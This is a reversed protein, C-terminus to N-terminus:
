EKKTEKKTEAKTEAKTETAATTETGAAEATEAETTEAEKVVRTVRVSVINNNAPEAIELNPLTIDCVRISKGITLSTVDILVEEIFDKLMGKLKLRRMEIRLRGGEQVGQAFGETRVPVSAIIPKDDQISLFDVHIIKDSVPHYQVDKVIANYQNEGIVINAYKADPTYILHRFSSIEASFHINKEVSGYLVCPVYGAKRLKVSDKKGTKERMQAKIEVSKM